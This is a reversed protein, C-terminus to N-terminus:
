YGHCKGFIEYLRKQPIQAQFVSIMPPLSCLNTGVFNFEHKGPPSFVVKKNFCKVNAHYVSLWDMGFIIDFDRMNLIILDAELLKDEIQVRCSRLLEKACLSEGSDFLVFALHGSIPVIGAGNITLSIIGRLNEVSSVLELRGLAFEVMNRAVLIVYQISKILVGM